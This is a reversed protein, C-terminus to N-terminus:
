GTASRFRRMLPQQRKVLVVEQGPIAIGVRRNGTEDGAASLFGYPQLTTHRAGPRFRQLARYLQNERPSELTPIAGAPIIDFQM